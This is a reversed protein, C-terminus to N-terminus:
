IIQVFHTVGTISFVKKIFPDPKNIYFNDKGIKNASSVIVRLFLSSVYVTKEIDFIVKVTQTNLNDKIIEGIKKNISESIKMTIAADLNKEFIFKYTFTTKDYIIQM